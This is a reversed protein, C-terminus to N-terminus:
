PTNTGNKKETDGWEFVELRVVPPSNHLNVWIPLTKFILISIFCKKKFLHKALTEFPSSVGSHHNQINEKNGDWNM